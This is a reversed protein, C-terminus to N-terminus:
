PRLGKNVIADAVSHITSQHRRAHDRMRDFAAGVSILQTGALMGKAQEVLVRSDLAERLQKATRREQRLLEAQAASLAEEAQRRATIDEIQAILWLPTGDAARILSASVRGWVVHGDRHLYRKEWQVSAAGGDVLHRVHLQDLPRDEPHSLADHDVAAVLEERTHGLMDALAQNVLVSRREVGLPLQRDVRTLSMGLASHRVVSALLRADSDMSAVGDRGGSCDAM